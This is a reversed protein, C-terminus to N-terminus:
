KSANELPEYHKAAVAAKLICLAPARTPCSRKRQYTQQVLNTSHAQWWFGGAVKQRRIQQRNHAPREISSRKEAM